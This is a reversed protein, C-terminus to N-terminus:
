PAYERLDTPRCRKVNTKCDGYVPSVRRRRHEGEHLSGQRGREEHGEGSYEHRREGGGIGAAGDLGIEGLERGVELCRVVGEDGVETGDVGGRLVPSLVPAIAAILFARESPWASRGATWFSRACSRASTFSAFAAFTM